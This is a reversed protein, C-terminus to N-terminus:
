DSHAGNRVLMPCLRKSTTPLRAPFRSRSIPSISLASLWRVAAGPLSGRTFSHWGSILALNSWSLRADISAAAAANGVTFL